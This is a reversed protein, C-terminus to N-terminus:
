VRFGLTARHGSLELSDPGYEAAFWPRKEHSGAGFVEPGLRKGQRPNLISFQVRSHEHIGLPTAAVCPRKEQTAASFENPGTSKERPIFCRFPPVELDAM